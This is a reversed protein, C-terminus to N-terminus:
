KQLRACLSIEPADKCIDPAGRARWYDFYGLREVLDAFRQFQQASGGRPYFLVVSNDFFGKGSEIELIDLAAEPLGGQDLMHYALWAPLGRDYAAKMEAVFAGDQSQAPDKQREVFAGLVPAFTQFPSQEIWELAADFDGRETLVFWRGVWVIPTEIGLDFWIYDLAVGGEEIRGVQVLNMAAETLTPPSNPELELAADTLATARELLGLERYHGAFWLILTTNDPDAELASRFVRESSLWDGQRQAISAIVSRPEALTPDLEIARDAALLAEGIARESSAESNYTPYTLQASALAAWAEAFTDDRDVAETLLKIARANPVEGRQLWLSRGREYLALAVADETMKSGPESPSSQEPLFTFIALAAVSILALASLAFPLWGRVFQEPARPVTEAAAPESRSDIWADLEVPAAYVTSRNEHRQRHVPLGEEREWRRATRESCGLHAAIRKWGVLRIKQAQASSPDVM